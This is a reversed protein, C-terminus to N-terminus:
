LDDTRPARELLSRAERVAQAADADAGFCLSWLADYLALESGLQDGLQTDLHRKEAATAALWCADCFCGWGCEARASVTARLAEANAQPNDM